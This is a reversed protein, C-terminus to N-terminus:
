SPIILSRLGQAEAWAKLEGKFPDTVVILNNQPDKLGLRELEALMARVELTVGSKSVIFFLANLSGEFTKRLQHSDCHDLFQVREKLEFFDVFAKLPLVSGGMGIVVLPRNAILSVIEEDIQDNSYDFMPHQAGFSTHETFESYPFRFFEQRQM